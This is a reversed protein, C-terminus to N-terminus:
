RDESCSKDRAAEGDPWVSVPSSTFSPTRSWRMKKLVRQSPGYLTAKPSNSSLHLTGDQGGYLNWSFLIEDGKRKPLVIHLTSPLSNGPARPPVWEHAKMLQEALVLNSLVEGWDVPVSSADYVLRAEQYLSNEIPEVTISWRGPYHDNIFNPGFSKFRYAQHFQEYQPFQQYSSNWWDAARAAGLDRVVSSLSREPFNVGDGLYETGEPFLPVCLAGITPHSTEWVRNGAQVKWRPLPPPPLDLPSEYYPFGSVLSLTIEPTGGLKLLLAPGDEFRFATTSNWARQLLIERLEKEDLGPPDCKAWPYTEHFLTDFDSRAIRRLLAEENISNDYTALATERLALVQSVSVVRGDAKYFEGELEWSTEVASEPVSHNLNYNAARFARIRLGPDPSEKPNRTISSWVAILALSVIVTAVNTILRM